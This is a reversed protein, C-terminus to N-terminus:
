VIVLIYVFSVLLVQAKPVWSFSWELLLKWAWTYPSVSTIRAVQSASIPLITTGPWGWCFTWSVGDWGIIPRSPICRDDWSSFSAYITPHRNLNAQSFFSVRDWFNDSCFPSVTHSLHNVAQSAFTSGQTGFATVCVCVCMCVCVVHLM